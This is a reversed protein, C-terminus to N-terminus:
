SDLIKNINLHNLWADAKNVLPDYWDAKDNAWIIWNQLEESLENNRELLVTKSLRSTIACLDPV